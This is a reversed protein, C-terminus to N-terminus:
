QLCKCIISLIHGVHTGEALLNAAQHDFEEQSHRPLLQCIQHFLVAKSSDSLIPVLQNVLSQVNRCLFSM